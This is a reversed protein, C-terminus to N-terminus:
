AMFDLMSTGTMTRQRIANEVQNQLYAEFMLGM